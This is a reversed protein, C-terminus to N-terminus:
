LSSPSVCSAIRPPTASRNRSSKRVCPPPPPIHGTFRFARLTHTSQIAAVRVDLRDMTFPSQRATRKAGPLKKNHIPLVAPALNVDRRNGGLDTWSKAQHISKVWLNWSLLSSSANGFLALHVARSVCTPCRKSTSRYSHRIRLVPLVTRFRSAQSSEQLCGSRVDSVNVPRQGSEWSLGHRM